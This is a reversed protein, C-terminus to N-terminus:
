RKLQPLDTCHSHLFQREENTIVFSDFPM